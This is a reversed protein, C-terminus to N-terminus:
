PTPPTSCVESSDEEYAGVNEVSIQGTEYVVVRKERFDPSVLCIAWGNCRFNECLNGAPISGYSEGGNDEAGQYVGFIADPNPRKFMIDLFQADNNTPNNNYDFFFCESSLDDPDSSWLIGCWGKILNERGITIKEVCETDSETSCFMDDGNDDGSNYLGDSSGGSGDGHDAFLIIEEPRNKNFHLGYPTSFDGGEGYQRVSISKVQAERVALAVKYALNTVETDSEFKNHNYFVVGSVIIIVAVTILMEFLTFGSNLKGSFKFKNKPM